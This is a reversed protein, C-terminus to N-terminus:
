GILRRWLPKSAERVVVDREAEAKARAEIEEELRRRLEAVEEKATDDSAALLARRGREEGLQLALREVQESQTTEPIEKAARLLALRANVSRRSVRRAGTSEDGELEGENLLRRVTSVSRGLVKAAEKVSYYEDDRHGAGNEMVCVRCSPRGSTM